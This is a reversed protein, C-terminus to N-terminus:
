PHLLWPIERRRERLGDRRVPRRHDVHHSIDIGQRRGGHSLMRCASFRSCSCGSRDSTTEARMGVIRPSSAIVTSLSRTSPEQSCALPLAFSTAPLAVPSELVSASPLACFVAPLTWFVTPPRFSVSRPSYRCALLM